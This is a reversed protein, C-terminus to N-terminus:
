RVSYYAIEDDDEDDYIKDYSRGRSEMGDCNLCRRLEGVCERSRSGFAPM